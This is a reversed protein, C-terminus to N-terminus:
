FQISDNMDKAAAGNAASKVPRLRVGKGLSTEEDYLDVIVGVWKAYDETYAEALKRANTRNLVLPKEVGEFYILLRRRTSGDKDAIDRIEVKGIRRRPTEGNLDSVGFYKSGYMESFVSM